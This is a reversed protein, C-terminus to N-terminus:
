ARLTDETDDPLLPQPAAPEAARRLHTARAFDEDVVEVAVVKHITPVFYVNAYLGPHLSEYQERTLVFEQDGVIMSYSGMWGFRFRRAKRAQEAELPPVPPTLGFALHVQGSRKSVIRPSIAIETLGVSVALTFLAPVILCLLLPPVEDTSPQASLITLIGLAGIIALVILAIQGASRRLRDVQAASLDGQRNQALDDPTFSFAKELPTEQRVNLSNMGANYRM